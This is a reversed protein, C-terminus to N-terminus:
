IALPVNPLIIDFFAYTFLNATPLSIISQSVLVLKFIYTVFEVLLAILMFFPSLTAYKIISRTTGILKTSSFNNLIYSYLNLKLKLKLVTSDM